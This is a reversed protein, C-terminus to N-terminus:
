IKDLIVGDVNPDILFVNELGNIFRRSAEDKGKWLGFDIYDDGNGKVWGVVNGAATRPIGLADYVENLFVHGRAKLLNNFYTETAQLFTLNYEPDKDWGPCSQDFFRAYQSHGTEDITIHQELIEKVKGNEDTETAVVNESKYGFRLARDEEEGYKEVVRARYDKFAEDVAAYAASLGAVRKLMIYHSGCLLGVSVAGLAASPLYLKVLKLATDGYVRAVARDTEKKPTDKPCNKAEEVNEKHEDIVEELHMSAKCALVVCGIGVVIGGGIMIEPSAKRLKLMARGAVPGLKEAAKAMVNFKM